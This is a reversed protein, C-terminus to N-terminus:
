ECKQPESEAHFEKTSGQKLESSRLKKSSKAEIQTINMTHVLVQVICGGKEIM